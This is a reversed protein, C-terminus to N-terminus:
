SPLGITALLIAMNIHVLKLDLYPDSSPYHGSSSRQQELHRSINAMNAMNAVKLLSNQM